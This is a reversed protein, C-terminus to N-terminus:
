ALLSVEIRDVMPDALGDESTLYDSLVRHDCIEIRKSRDGTKYIIVLLYEM